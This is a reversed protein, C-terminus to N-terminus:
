PYPDCDDDELLDAPINAPHPEKFLVRPGGGPVKAVVGPGYNTQEVMLKQEELESDYGDTALQREYLILEKWDEYLERVSRAM